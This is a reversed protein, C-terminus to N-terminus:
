SSAPEQLSGSVSEKASQAIQEEGALSDVYAVFEPSFLWKSEYQWFLRCNPFTLM